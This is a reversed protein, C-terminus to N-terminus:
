SDIATGSDAADSRRGVRKERAGGAHELFVEDSYNEGPHAPVSRLSKAGNTSGSACRDYLIARARYNITHRAGSEGGSTGIPYDRWAKDAHRRSLEEGRAPRDSSAPGRM